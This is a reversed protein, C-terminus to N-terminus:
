AIGAPVFRICAGTSDIGESTISQHHAVAHVLEGDFRFVMTFVGDCLRAVSAVITDFVPQVDTPSSSIM